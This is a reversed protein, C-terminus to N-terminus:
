EKSLLPNEDIFKKFIDKCERLSTYNSNHKMTSLPLKKNNFSRIKWIPGIYGIGYKGFKIRPTLLDLKMIKYIDERLKNWENGKATTRDMIKWRGIPTYIYCPMGNYEELFLGCETQSNFSDPGELYYEKWEISINYKKSEIIRHISDAIMKASYLIENVTLRM